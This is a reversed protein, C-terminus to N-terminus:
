DENGHDLSRWLKDATGRGIGPVAEMEKQTITWRLPLGHADWLAGARVTSMGPWAQLVHASWDKDRWTGWLGRGKPRRFLSDHSAKALFTEVRPLLSITGAISPSHLVMIDNMQLSMCIGDFQSRLFGECGRRGSEGSHSWKWSGEIIVAAKHLEKMQHLERALRDSDGRFSALLDSCEKRQAGGMRGDPLYFLFDVGYTEVVSSYVGLQLFDKPEAPSVLM